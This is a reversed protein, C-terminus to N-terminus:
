ASKASCLAWAAAGAVSACLLSLENTLSNARRVDMVLSSTAVSRLLANCFTNSALSRSWDLDSRNKWRGMAVTILVSMTHLAIAIAMWKCMRPKSNPTGKPTESASSTHGPYRSTKSPRSVVNLMKNKSSNARRRAKRRFFNKTSGSSSRMSQNLMKSKSTTTNQETSKKMKVGRASESDVFRVNTRRTRKALSDRPSLTIRTIFANELSRINTPVTAALKMASIQDMTSMHTRMKPPATRMQWTSWGLRSSSVKLTSIRWHIKLIYPVDPRATHVM